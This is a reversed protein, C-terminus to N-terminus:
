CLGHGLDPGPTAAASFPQVDDAAAEAAETAAACGPLLAAHLLSPATPTSLLPLMPLPTTLSRPPMWREGGDM